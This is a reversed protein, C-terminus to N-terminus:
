ADTNSAVAHSNIMVVFLFPNAFSCGISITMEYICIFTNCHRQKAQSGIDEVLPIKKHDEPHYFWVRTSSNCSWSAGTAGIPSEENSCDNITSLNVRFRGFMWKCNTTSYRQEMWDGYILVIIPNTLKHSAIRNCYCPFLISIDRFMQLEFGCSQVIVLSIPLVVCFHRVFILYLSRHQKDVADLLHAIEKWKKSAYNASLSLSFFCANQTAPDCSNITFQM